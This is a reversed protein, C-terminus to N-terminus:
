ITFTKNDAPTNQYKHLAEAVYGPMSIDVTQKQYYWQLIISFYLSVDWDEAVPYLERNATILHDVNEKGVYKVEINDVVLSFLIPRWKQRWLKPTHTCQFYGKPTPCKTLLYNSLRVYQPLVYM